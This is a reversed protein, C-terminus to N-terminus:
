KDCYYWLVAINVSPCVLVRGIDVDSKEVRDREVDTIETIEM